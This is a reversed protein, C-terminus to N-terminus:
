TCFGLSSNVNREAQDHRINSGQVQFIALPIPYSIGFRRIVRAVGTELGGNQTQLDKHVTRNKCRAINFLAVACM